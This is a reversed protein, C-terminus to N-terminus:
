PLVSMFVRGARGPEAHRETHEAARRDDGQELL